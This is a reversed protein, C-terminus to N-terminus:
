HCERKGLGWTRQFLKALDGEEWRVSTPRGHPCSRPDQLALLGRVVGEMEGRELRDGAKVALHCAVTAMLKKRLEAPTTARGAQELDEILWRLLPAVDRDAAEPPVGHVAFANGGFEAIEIGLSALTAVQGQLLLAESASCQITQPLLLRQSEGGAPRAQLREFIVKEHATHQDVVLLGEPTRAVIYTQFLQGLIEVSGAQPLTLLEWGAGAEHATGPAGAPPTGGMAPEGERAAGPVLGEPMRGSAPPLAVGAEQFGKRLGKFLVQYVAQADAFRVEDKAPHVNVDVREAPITLYIVATPSVERPLQGAYSALLAHRLMRDEVPRGNVLFWQRGRRKVAGPPEMYGAALLAGDEIEFGILERGAEGLVARVRTILGKAPPANLREEGDVTLIFHVEPLTLAYPEVVRAVAAVEAAPSKLFKLRAPMAAFLRRVAITTGRDCGAPAAALPKGAGGAVRVGESAKPLRTFMEVEGAAAIAALAEGRFGYTGIRQLDDLVHLKSTAHREFAVLAEAAPIGTGDDSVRILRMGAGELDIRVRSAGADLANEVLEKVVSAPREVVEGASIGAVTDAALVRIPM